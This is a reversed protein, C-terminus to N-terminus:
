FQGNIPLTWGQAHIGSSVINCAMDAMEDATEPRDYLIWQELLGVTGAAVYSYFYHFRVLDEEKLTQAYIKLLWDLCLQKTKSLFSIDGNPGLLAKYLKRHNATYQFIGRIFPEPNASLTDSVHQSFLDEFNSLVEQELQEIMDYIDKYHLYFTGRNVDAVDCLEKVTIDNYSKTELLSFLAETLLTRTRRVRRDLKEQSSITAM